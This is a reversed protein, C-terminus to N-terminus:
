PMQGCTTNNSVARMPRRLARFYVMGKASYKRVTPILSVPTPFWMPVAFRVAPSFGDHFNNCDALTLVPSDPVM